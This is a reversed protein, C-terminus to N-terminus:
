ISTEFDELKRLCRRCHKGPFIGSTKLAVKAQFVIHSTHPVAGTIEVGRCWWQNVLLKLKKFFMLLIWISGIVSVKALM